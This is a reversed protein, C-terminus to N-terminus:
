LQRDESSPELDSPTVFAILIIGQTVADTLVTQFCRSGTNLDFLVPYVSKTGLCTQVHLSM